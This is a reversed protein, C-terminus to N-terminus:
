SYKRSSSLNRMSENLRGGLVYFCSAVSLRLLNSKAAKQIVTMTAKRVSTLMGQLM